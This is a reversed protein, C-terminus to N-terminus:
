NKITEVIAQAVAYEKEHSISIHIKMQKLMPQKVYPKHYDDYLIVIDRMFLQDLIGTLAKLLAEKAAFRGALFERKRSELSLGDFITQEEDSLIKKDLSLKIRNIQCIDIGMGKIM